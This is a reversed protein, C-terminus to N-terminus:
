VPARRYGYHGLAAAWVVAFGLPGVGRATMDSGSSHHLAPRGL